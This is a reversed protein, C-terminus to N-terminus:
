AFVHFIVVACTNFYVFVPTCFAFVLMGDFFLSPDSVNVLAMSATVGILALAALTTMRVGSSYHSWSRDIMALEQAEAVYAKLNRIREIMIALFLTSMAM